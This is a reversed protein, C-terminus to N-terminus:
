IVMSSISKSGFYQVIKIIVVGAVLPLMVWNEKLWQTFGQDASQVSEIISVLQQVCDDLTKITDVIPLNNIKNYVDIVQAMSIVKYVVSKEIIVQLFSYVVAIIDSFDKLLTYEEALQQDIEIKDHTVDSYTKIIEWISFIANFSRENRVTALVEKMKGTKLGKLVEDFPFKEFEEKVSSKLRETDDKVSNGELWFWQALDYLGFLKKTSIDKHNDFVIKGKGWLSIEREGVNHEGKGRKTLFVALEKLDRKEQVNLLGSHKEIKHSIKKAMRRYIKKSKGLFWSSLNKTDSDWLEKLFSVPQNLASVYSKFECLKRHLAFAEDIDSINRYVPEDFVPLCRCFYSDNSWPPKFVKREVSKKCNCSFEGVDGQCRWVGLISLWILLGAVGVKM